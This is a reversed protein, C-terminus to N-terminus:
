CHRPLLVSLLSYFADRVFSFFHSRYGSVSLDCCSCRSRCAIIYILNYNLTCYDILRISLKWFNSPKKTKKEVLWCTWSKKVQFTSYMNIKILFLKSNSVPQILILNFQRLTSGGAVGFGPVKFVSLCCIDVVVFM